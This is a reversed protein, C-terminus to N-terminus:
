PTAETMRQARLNEQPRRARGLELRFATLSALVVVFIALVLVPQWSLDPPTGRITQDVRAMLYWTGPILQGWHYAFSNMGLRPFGIGMYGFSPAFILTAISIASPMPRVLLALLVGILQNALVFLLGALFLIWRDGRLPMELVGFLVTDSLGLV